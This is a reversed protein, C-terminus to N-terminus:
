EKSMLLPPWVKSTPTSARLPLTSSSLASPACGSQAISPVRADTRGRGIRAASIVALNLGHFEQEDLIIAIEQSRDAAATLLYLDSKKIFVNTEDIPKFFFPNIFNGDAKNM